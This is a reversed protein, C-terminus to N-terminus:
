PAVRRTSGSNSSFKLRRREQKYKRIDAFTRAVFWCIVVVALIILFLGYAIVFFGVSLAFREDTIPM